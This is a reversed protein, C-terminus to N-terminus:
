DRSKALSDHQAQHFIALSAETNTVMFGPLPTHGGFVVSNRQLWIRHAMCLVLLLEEDELKEMLTSVLSMDNTAVISLKQVKRSCEMWVVMTSPCEWLIHEITEPHLGCIPCFCDPVMKKRFLNVKTPLLNHYVKWM